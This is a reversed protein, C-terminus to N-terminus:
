AQPAADTSFEASKITFTGGEGANSYNFFIYVSYVANPDIDTMASLDCIITNDGAAITISKECKNNNFPKVIIKKGETGTVVVKFTKMKALEAGTVDVKLSAWAANEKEAKTVTVTEDANNVITYVGGDADYWNGVAKDTATIQNIVGSAFEASIIKLAANETGDWDFFVLISYTEEPDIEVTLKTLDCIIVNNGEALRVEKQVANDGFPKFIIPAGVKGSVVVKFSQMKALAAGKIDAKLQAWSGNASKTIDYTGDAQAIVSYKGEGGDYWGGVKKNAATITNVSVPALDTSYEASVITFTGKASGVGPAVMLLIPQEKTYDIDATVPKKVNIIVEQNEGTFTVTTQLETKDYPKIMLQTGATGKVTLKLTNMDKIAEGKVLARVAPYGGYKDYDVKYATGEKTVTYSPIAANTDFWGADIKKDDATITKATTQVPTVNEVNNDANIAKSTLTFKSVTLTGNVGQLEGQAFILMRTAKSLDINEASVDWEYTASTSSMAFTVEKAKVESSEQFEFKLTIVAKSESEMKGEMVVTNVKQLDAADGAGAMLYRAYKWNGANEYSISLAGDSTNTCTYIKGGAEDEENGKWGASGGANLISLNVDKDKNNDGGGGCAALATVSCGITLALLGTTILKKM